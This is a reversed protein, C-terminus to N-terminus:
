VTVPSLVWTSVHPHPVFCHIAPAATRRVSAVLSSKQVHPCRTARTNAGCVAGLVQAAARWGAAPQEGELDLNHAAQQAELLDHDGVQEVGLVVSHHVNNVADQVLCDAVTPVAYRVQPAMGCHVAM